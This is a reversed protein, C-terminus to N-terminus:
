QSRWLANVRRDRSIALIESIRSWVGVDEDIYITGDRAVAIGVGSQAPTSRLPAMSGSRTSRQIGYNSVAVM